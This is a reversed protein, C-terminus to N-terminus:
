GERDIEEKKSELFRNVENIVIENYNVQEKGNWGYIDADYINYFAEQFPIVTFKLSARSEPLLISSVIRKVDTMLSYPVVPMGRIVLRAIISMKFDMIILADITRYDVIYTIKSGEYIRNEQRLM